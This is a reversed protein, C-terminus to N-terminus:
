NGRQLPSPMHLFCTLVAPLCSCSFHLCTISPAWFSLYNSKNEPVDMDEKGEEAEGEKGMQKPWCLQTLNQSLKVMIFYCENRGTKQKPKSKAQRHYIGFSSLQLQWRKSILPLRRSGPILHSSSTTNPSYNHNSHCTIAGSGPLGQWGLHQHSHWKAVLGLSSKHRPLVHIEGSCTRSCVRDRGVRQTSGLCSGWSHKSVKPDGEKLLERKYVKSEPRFYIKVKGKRKLLVIPVALSPDWHSLLM